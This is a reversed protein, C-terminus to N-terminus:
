AMLFPALIRDGFSQAPINKQRANTVISRLDARQQSIKNPLDENIFVGQTEDSSRLLRRKKSIENRLSERAFKVLIPRPNNAKKRGIRYALDIDDFIITDHISSLTSLVLEHTVNASGDGTENESPDNENENVSGNNAARTAGGIKRRSRQSVQSCYINKRSGVDLELCYDEQSKSYNCLAVYNSELRVLATATNRENQICKSIQKELRSVHGNYYEVNKELESIRMSLKRAVDEGVFQHEVSAM